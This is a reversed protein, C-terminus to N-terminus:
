PFTELRTAPHPPVAPDYRLSSVAAPAPPGAAPTGAGHPHWSQVAVDPPPWDALDRWKGLM